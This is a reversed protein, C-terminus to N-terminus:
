PSQKVPPVKDPDERWFKGAYKEQAHNMVLLGELDRELDQVFDVTCEQLYFAAFPDMLVVFEEGGADAHIEFDDEKLDTFGTSYTFGDCGKGSILVRFYKGAITFDNEMMLKLEGLARETLHVRPTPIRDKDLHTSM